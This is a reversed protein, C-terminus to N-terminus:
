ARRVHDILLKGIEPKAWGPSLVATGSFFCAPFRRGPYGRPIGCILGNIRHTGKLVNRATLKKEGKIEFILSALQRTSSVGIGTKLPIGCASILLAQRSFYELYINKM